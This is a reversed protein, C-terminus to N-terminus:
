LSFLVRNELLTLVATKFKQIQKKHWDCGEVQSRFGDTDGKTKWNGEGFKWTM